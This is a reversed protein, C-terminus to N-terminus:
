IKREGTDNLTGYTSLLHIDVSEIPLYRDRSNQERNPRAIRVFNMSIQQRISLSSRLLAKQIM